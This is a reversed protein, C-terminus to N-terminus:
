NVYKGEELATGIVVSDAGAELIVDLKEEGDIGGGYRLHADQLVTSAEKVPEPGLYKGSGEIYIIPFNFQIEGNMAYARLEEEEPINEETVGAKKAADCDPNMIIYGQPIIKQKLQGVLQGYIDRWEDTGAMEWAETQLKEDTEVLFEHHKGRFSDDSGNLVSSVIVGDFFTLTDSSVQGSDGPEQYIPTEPFLKRLERGDRLADDASVNMSGGVLIADFDREEIGGPIGDDPDVVAILEEESFDCEM